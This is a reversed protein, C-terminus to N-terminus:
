PPPGWDFGLDRLSPFLDDMSEVLVDAGVAELQARTRFGYTV